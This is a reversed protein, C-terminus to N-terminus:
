ALYVVLYLIPWLAVVFSWYLALISLREAGRPVCRATWGRVLVALLWILAAALHAAHAGIITYFIGGYIGSSATLGFSLLRAWEYGQVALFTLGLLATLGLRASAARTGGERRAAVARWMTWGSALLFISNAATAEIPLRPQYPPPWVPAGLRLVMFAAIFGAFLMTEAGLFVLMGLQAGDIMPRTEVRSVSM